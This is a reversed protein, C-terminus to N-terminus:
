LARGRAKLIRKLLSEVSEEAEPAAQAILQEVMKERYGLSILARRVASLDCLMDTQDRTSAPDIGGEERHALAGLLELKAKLEVLLREATRLGIGSIKKLELLNESQVVRHLAELSCHSLVSLALKPGVGNVKLLVRFLAKERACLFGYAQVDDEKYVTHIFLELPEGIAPLSTVAHAPLMVEYGVGQVFLLIENKNCETLTGSLAGIM